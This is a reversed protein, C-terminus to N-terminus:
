IGFQEAASTAQALVDVLTSAEVRISSLNRVGEGTLRQFKTQEANIAGISALTGTFLGQLLNAPTLSQKLAITVQNLLGRQGKLAQIRQNYLEVEEESLEKNTDLQYELYVLEQNISSMNDKITSFPNDIGLNNLAKGAGSLLTSFFSSEKNTDKFIDKLDGLSEKEKNLVAIEENAAKVLTESLGVQEAKAKKLAQQIVTKQKIIKLEARQFDNIRASGAELKLEIDLLAGSSDAIAKINRKFRQLFQKSSNDTSEIAKQIKNFIADAISESVRDFEQGLSEISDKFLDLQNPDSKKRAM